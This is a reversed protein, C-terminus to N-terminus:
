VVFLGWFPSGSAVLIRWDNGLLGFFLLLVVLLLILGRVVVTADEAFLTMDSGLM